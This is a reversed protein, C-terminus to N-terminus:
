TSRTTTAADRFGVIRVDPPAEASLHEDWAMAFKLPIGIKREIEVFACNPRNDDRRIEKVRSWPFFIQGANERVISIGPESAAVHVSYFEEDIEFIGRRAPYEERPGFFDPSESYDIKLAKWSDESRWVQGILSVFVIVAAYAIYGWNQRAWEDFGYDYREPVSWYLYGVIAAVVALGYLFTVVPGVARRIGVIVGTLLSVAGLAENGSRILLIGATFLLAGLVIRVVGFRRYIRIETPM